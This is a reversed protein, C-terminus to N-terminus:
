TPASETKTTLAQTAIAGFWNLGDRVDILEQENVNFDADSKPHTLRDRVKIARLFAAGGGNSFDVQLDHGHFGSLMKMVLVVSGKLGHKASRKYIEGNDKIAPQSDELALIIEPPYEHFRSWEVAEMRCGHLISEIGSFINRITVRAVFQKDFPPSCMGATQSSEDNVAQVIALAARAADKIKQNM